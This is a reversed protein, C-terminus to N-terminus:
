KEFNTDVLNDILNVMLESVADVANIIADENNATLCNCCLQTSKIGKLNVIVQASIKCSTSDKPEIEKRWDLNPTYYDKDKMWIRVQENFPVEENDVTISDKQKNGM